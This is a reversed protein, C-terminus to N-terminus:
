FEYDEKATVNLYLGYSSPYIGALLALLKQQRLILSNNRHGYSVLESHYRKGKELQKLKNTQQTTHQEWKKTGLKNIHLILLTVSGVSFAARKGM